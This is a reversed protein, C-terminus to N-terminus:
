ETYEDALDKRRISNTPTKPISDRIFVRKPVEFDALDDSEKCFAIVEEKTLEADGKPVVAVCVQKGWREHPIGFVASEHVGPHTNVVPEIARPYVNEGGTILMNDARDEYYLYGAEDVSVIDGTKYWNEGTFAEATKEPKRYYKKFVSEGRIQLEGRGPDTAGDYNVTTVIEDTKPDALRVEL